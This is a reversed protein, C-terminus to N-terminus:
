VTVSGRPREPKLYTQNESQLDQCRREFHVLSDRAGTPSGQEGGTPENPSLTPSSDELFNGGRDYQSECELIHYRM